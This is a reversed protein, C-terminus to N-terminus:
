EGLKTQAKRGPIQSHIEKLLLVIVIAIQVEYRLQELQLIHNHIITKTFINGASIPQVEKREGVIFKYLQNM